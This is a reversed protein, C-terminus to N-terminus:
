RRPGADSAAPSANGTAVTDSHYADFIDHGFKIVQAPLFHGYNPSDDNSILISNPTHKVVAAQASTVAVNDAPTHGWNKFIKGIILRSEPNGWRQRAASAWEKLNAQYATSIPAGLSADQEGQMWIIARVVPTKRQASLIAKARVIASEVQGFFEGRGSSPSWDPGRPEKALQTAGIGYKIIYISKEPYSKRMLYSFESEPGWNGPVGGNQMSKVPQMSNIGVEYTAFRGTDVDWIQVGPDKVVYSPANERTTTSNVQINSQGAFVFIDATQETARLSQPVVIYALFVLTTVRAIIM